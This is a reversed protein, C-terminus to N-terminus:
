STRTPGTRQFCVDLPRARREHLMSLSNPAFPESAYVIMTATDWNTRLRLGTGTTREAPEISDPGLIHTTPEQSRQSSSSQHASMALRCQHQSTFARGDM